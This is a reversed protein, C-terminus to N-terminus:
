MCICVLAFCHFLPLNIKLVIRVNDIMNTSSLPIVTERPILAEAVHTCLNDKM